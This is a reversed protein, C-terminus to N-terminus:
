PEIKLLRGESRGFVEPFYFEQAVTPIVKYEGPLTARMTYSYEYTGKALYDAFLVVKEDRLESRSYWNWWWWYADFYPRAIGGFEVPSLIPGRELLSTTALGRDVAEAGAPLPDEVVLYYMDHKAVITLDVRIVDGLRVETVEPCENRNAEECSALTYRRSVVIGRDVPDIEEVPLYVKLHATYYLRGEGDGRAITLRNGADRLLDAIAVKLQVTERVNEPTFRGEALTGDNFFVAYDHNPKLEGTLAMWDTLGILAWATEQTTEWIGEKRAVMLWRVVNPNLANDRDLRALAALIIATSRTDTNMAWWDYDNEEWHAGTASLIASSNLDSLLTRLRADNPNSRGIAMALFARAYHSLEERAEFTDDLRDAPARGPEADALVFLVFAQENAERFSGLEKLDRLSGILFQQGRDIVNGRVDFGAQRAQMLGYVVYATLHVNSEEDEAWWGWGGDDHQQAYLKDLGEQVLGPLKAELEPDDIGLEKLARYSLVNPLFRSVTQETCEYPYHELYDLGEVTAAALSADLRISLDGQRDDYKPPLAVVETRQGGRELQGGTGVIDPATYRFVLLSGDPGTTLRPKSADSLDGSVAAFILQVNEADGVTVDWEVKTESRPPITVTRVADSNFTVGEATLSVDVALTADTNNSVNAALIARDGVVFFRPAVPRILLPKTAVVDVTAEGVKTDTTVGVSRFTWTTLNDPLRITVAGRGNAGTTFTPNWYATDAFEERIEIGPPLPASAAGFADAAAEVPALTAAPQPAAAPAEVARAELAVQVQQIQELLRNGSVALGSSTSVGLGRRGYFGQVIADPARPLLSLVAKDVLDLSFEGAVPRGDADTVAVDYTVDEGPQAQAASPTLETNLTQPVPTVDLPLLGIKYDALNEPKLCDAGVCNNQGKVLVVSFYINPALDSTIPLRYITSNTTLRLVQSRLVGGREVTILAYQEGQFPSPILIEATEGPVHTNKDSILTLRDNNERRWSVYERGYVWLFTSARVTRGGNDVAEAVIHYSGPDAPTFTFVAEGKDDTTVTATAVLTDQTTYEWTGGGAENEVFTNIWERRFASVTIPINPIRTGIWDVVVLDVSTPRDEAAVYDRTALGVYLDGQHRVIEGRGAIFQNDPGSATAEVILRVSRTIPEGSSWKLDAPIDITIKGEADTTGSGSLIPEPVTYPAYWWCDFCIWPDDVDGFTYPGGWPPQFHYTEALVNWNVATNALGGGFFYRAQATVRTAEGRAIEDREPTVVIEFEPPRYAAVTFSQGFSQGRFTVEIQYAGLSAGADLQLADHFTALESLSLDKEYITTYAADYVKVHVQGVDPLSYRVDDEARVIGKFNVTQGPRYIPRDTYIFSNYPASGYYVPQIGFDYVGIGSSWSTSGATFPAEAIVYYVSSVNEDYAVRATGDSGTTARAIDRNDYDYFVLSIGPAPRGARLDTVWVMAEGLWTKLVVNYQSVVLLHRNGYTYFQDPPIDPSTADLLYFGPALGARLPSSPRAGGETVEIRTYDVENPPSDISLSWSRIPASAPRYNYSDRQFGLAQSTSLAYLNLDIRRVNTHTAVLAVPDNANYTAVQGPVNLALSPPLEATRYRVTLSQGTTNGYPDAINPGIELAYDTSPKVDYSLVFSNDYTNFYTYAVTPSFPPTMRLNPMVTDPDIPANFYITFGTYVPVDRQGDAPDTRLIRPLPVTSFLWQRAQRSGLGGARSTVGADVSARYTTDFDLRNTPTFILTDSVVSFAGGITQGSQAVLGFRSRASEPDVPQNFQVTIATEIPVLSANEAPTVWVVEPPATSFTWAFDSQMPNGDTDTLDFIRGTYTVGGALPGSARFIFISTNLWEGKGAIEVGSGDTLKFPQPLRAQEQLSTLPVVPRNFIITVLTDSPDVDAAGPAPIVQAVELYGAAAFRFQYAQNLPAGDTDQAGQDVVVDYIGARALEASPQFQVIRDNIWNFTGAVAPYMQFASEVSARNMPRDFVLEIPSEPPQEQGTEPSRQIVVPSIIGDPVPTYGVIPRPPLASPIPVPTSTAQVVLGPTASPTIAIPSRGPLNSVVAAGALIAIGALAAIVIRTRRSM